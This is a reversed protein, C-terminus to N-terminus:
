EERSIIILINNYKNCRLKMESKTSFDSFIGRKSAGKDEEYPVWLLQYFCSAKLFEIFRFNPSISLLTMIQKFRRVNTPFMLSSYSHETYM